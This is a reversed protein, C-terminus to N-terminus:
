DTILQYSVVLILIKIQKYSLTIINSSLLFFVSLLFALTTFVFLPLFISEDFHGMHSLFFYINILFSFGLLNNLIKPYFVGKVLIGTAPSIKDYLYLM